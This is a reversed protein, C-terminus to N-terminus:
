SFRPQQERDSEIKGKITEVELPKHPHEADFVQFRVPALAEERLLVVPDEAAVGFEKESIQISVNRFQIPRNM